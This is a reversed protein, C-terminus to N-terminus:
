NGAIITPTTVIVNEKTPLTSEDTAYHVILSENLTIIKIKKDSSNELGQILIIGHDFGKEPKM